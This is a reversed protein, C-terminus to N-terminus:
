HGHGGCNDQDAGKGTLDKVREIGRPTYFILESLSGDLNEGRLRLFNANEYYAVPLERKYVRGTKKDRIEVTIEEATLEFIEDM